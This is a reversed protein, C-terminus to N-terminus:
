FATSGWLLGLDEPMLQGRGKACCVFGTDFGNPAMVIETLKHTSYPRIVHVVFTEELVNLYNAITPRSV